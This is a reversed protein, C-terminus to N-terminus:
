KAALMDVEDIIIITAFGNILHYKPCANKSLAFINCTNASLMGIMFIEVKNSIYEAVKFPVIEIEAAFAGAEELKLTQEYIKKAEIANKGYAKFGGYLTSKYPIFGTHGVVPIGEDTIAKIFKYSQPCYIADAGKEFLYFCGPVKM